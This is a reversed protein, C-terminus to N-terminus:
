QRTVMGYWWRRPLHTAYLGCSCNRDPAFHPRVLCIATTAASATWGPRGIPSLLRDYKASVRWERFGLVPMGVTVVKSESGGAPMAPSSGRLAQRLRGALDM